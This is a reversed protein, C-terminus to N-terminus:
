VILQGPELRLGGREEAHDLTGRPRRMEGELHEAVDVGVLVYVDEVTRM